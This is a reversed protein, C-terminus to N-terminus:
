SLWKKMLATLTGDNELVELAENVKKSMSAHRRTAISFSSFAGEIPYTKLNTGERYAEAVKREMVAFDIRNNKLDQVVEGLKPLAHITLRQGAERKDRLFGEFTSGQQAGIKYGTLDQGTYACTTSCLAYIPTKYYPRSFDVVLARKDTPSIGAIVMDGRGTKLAPLLFDFQMDKMILKKKMVRAINEALEIDFGTFRNRATDFSELPPNDASTLVILTNKGNPSSCSTCILFLSTWALFARLVKPAKHWLNQSFDRM